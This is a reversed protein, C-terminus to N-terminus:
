YLELIMRCGGGAAKNYRQLQHIGDRIGRANFPKLEYIIGNTPNRQDFFDFSNKGFTAEKSM